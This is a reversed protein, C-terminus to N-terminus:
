SKKFSPIGYEFKSEPWIQVEEHRKQLVPILEKWQTLPLYYRWTKDDKKWGCNRPKLDNRLNWKYKLKERGDHDGIRISGMRNDKFRIYVSDTTAIHWIYCGIKLQTLEFILNNAVNEHTM